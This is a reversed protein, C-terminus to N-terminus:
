ASAKSKSQLIEAETVPRARLERAKDEDKQANLNDGLTRFAKARGEYAEYCNPDLRIAAAFDEIGHALDNIQSYLRGREIFAISTCYAIPYKNSFLNIAREYDALAQETQGLHWNALARHFYSHGREPVLRIAHSLDYEAAQYQHMYRCQSMGRFAWANVNNPNLRIAEGFDKLAADYDETHLRIFGRVAWANDLLPDIRIAENADALASDYDRLDAFCKARRALCEASHPEMRVAETLEALLGTQDDGPLVLKRIIHSPM